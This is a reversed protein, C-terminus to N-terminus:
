KRKSLSFEFYIGIERNFLNFIKDFVFSSVQKKRGANLIFEFGRNIELNSNNLEDM